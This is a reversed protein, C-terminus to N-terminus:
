MPWKGIPCEELCDYLVIFKRGDVEEVWHEHYPPCEPRSALKFVNNQQVWTDPKRIAMDVFTHPIDTMDISRFSTATSLASLLHPLADHPVAMFADQIGTASRHLLLCEDSPLPPLSRKFQIDGRMIITHSAANTCAKRVGEIICECTVKDQGFERTETFNSMHDRVYHSGSLTKPLPSGSFRVCELVEYNKLINSINSADYCDNYHLVVLNVKLM